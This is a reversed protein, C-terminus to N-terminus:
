GDLVSAIVEVFTEDLDPGAALRSGNVIALQGGAVLGQVQRVRLGLGEPDFDYARLARDQESREWALRFGPYDDRVDALSAQALREVAEPPIPDHLEVVISPRFDDQELDSGAVATLTRAALDSTVEWGVPLAVSVELMEDHIRVLEVRGTM